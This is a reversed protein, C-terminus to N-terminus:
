HTLEMGQLRGFARKFGKHALQFVGSLAAQTQRGNFFAIVDSDNGKQRSSATISM